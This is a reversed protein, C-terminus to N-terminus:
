EVAAGDEGTQAGIGAAATDRPWAPYSVARQLGAGEGKVEGVGEGVGEGVVEGVGEGVGLGVGEGVGLGVEVEVGFSIPCHM